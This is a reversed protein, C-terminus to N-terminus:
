RFSATTMPKPRGSPHTSATAPRATQRSDPRPMIPTSPPRMSKRTVPLVNMGSPSSTSNPRRSTAPRAPRTPMTAWCRSASRAIFTRSKTSWGPRRTTAGHVTMAWLRNTSTSIAPRVPTRRRQFISAKTAPRAIRGTTSAKSPLGRRPMILRWRIGSYPGPMRRTVPRVTSACPRVTLRNPM